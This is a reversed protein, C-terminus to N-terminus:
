RDAGSSACVRNRGSNKAKYLAMDAHNLLVDINDDSSSLSSVGISVTFQVPLGGELPIKAQLMLERLREAVEVAYAIDTEPLIVAFEEGGLRGLIDANRLTAQCQHALRRLVEDGIKHGYRDNIQKFHDIDLMLLSLQKGYRNARHLEQEAREMFHRRNCVGTLYDIHAQRLLEEELLKREPIDLHTGCMRTAKGQADRQMVKAQDLIWRIGGDKHLMRYEIKHSASRGEVVDFISSWARERDEPYVFDSWQQTSNQIEQHTYGLMTAWRENRDVKGTTIEWDWFGLEAGELVFQLQTLSEQLARETNKQETVEDFIAVFDGAQPCYIQGAFWQKWADVFMVFSEAEGSRAVRSCIEMLPFDAQGTKLWIESILKGSADQLGTLRGFAPNTYLHIFDTPRDQEYVMRCYAVASLMHALLGEPAMGEQVQLAHAACALPFPTPPPKKNM